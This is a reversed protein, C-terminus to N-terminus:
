DWGTLTIPVIIKVDDRIIEADVVDGAKYIRLADVLANGDDVSRDGFRVIRDQARVGANAASEKEQVERVVCGKENGLSGGFTIGLKAAGRDQIELGPIAGRLHAIGEDSVPCGQIRYLRTLRKLRAIQKLGADGGTWKPGIILLSLELQEKASDAGRNARGIIQPPAPNLRQNWAVSFEGPLDYRAM